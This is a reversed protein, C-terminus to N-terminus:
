STPITTQKPEKETNKKVEDKVEEEVVSAEQIHDDAPGDDELDSKYGAETKKKWEEFEENDLAMDANMAKLVGESIGTKPISKFANNVITKKAMEEFDTDWPSGKGSKVAESRSKIEDIRERTMTGMMKEDSQLVAVWYGGIVKGRPKFPEPTHIIERADGDKMQFLDNEYVLNVWINKVVGTRMLIEIKGMYSSQFFLKGGFPVLYGLRLVPNLTLGTLAVNVVADVISNRDMKELYPNNRIVQLAFGAEKIFQEETGGSAIFQKKPQTLVLTKMDMTAISQKTAPTNSKTTM